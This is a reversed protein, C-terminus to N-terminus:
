ATGVQSVRAEMDFCEHNAAVLSLTSAKLAQILTVSGVQLFQGAELEVDPVDAEQIIWLRGELAHIQLAQGGHIKLM